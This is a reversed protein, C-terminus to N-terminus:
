TTVALPAASALNPLQGGTLALGFWVWNQEYYNYRQDFYAVTGQQYFTAALKGAAISGAASHGAVLFNGIDGGYITPDQTKRSVSGDHRYEAALRGKRKWETRLFSSRQLYSRASASRNWMYDLATRWMVRFADYGFTSDGSVHPAPVAAATARAIACWNPPLGASTKSGLPATTCLTLARYSGKVLRQWPHSRDEQAFIRYAYPAFYSPNLVPGPRQLVAWSGATLYPQGKVTAVEHKWIDHLVAQAAVSYVDSHWIRSAFVLALAIDEDADSASDKNLITWTNGSKRGWMFGFLADTGRVQLNNQTWKWVIDFEPRDNMWVARLLAYSEGESTSVDSRYHDIVRGDAQIFDAKYSDWTARLMTSIAAASTRSGGPPLGANSAGATDRPSVDHLAIM